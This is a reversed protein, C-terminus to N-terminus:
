QWEAIEARARRTMEVFRPFFRELYSSALLVATGIVALSLWPSFAYFQAAYKLHYLTGLALGTGGALFMGKDKIGHAAATIIVSAMVCLFSSVIGEDVTLQVLVSAVALWAALRRYGKGSGKVEFSLGFFLLAIPLYTFPISLTSGSDLIIGNAVTSWTAAAGLFTLRECFWQGTAALSGEVEELRKALAFMIATAAFLLAAAFIATQPYLLFNRGLLAGYPLVLIARAIIGETSSMLARQRLVRLEYAALGGFLALSLLAVANPDRTPLLLLLNAALYLATARKAEPRILASFALFAVATLAPAAVALMLLAQALSPTTVVFFPQLGDPVGFLGNYILAGLQVFHAPLFAAAVGLFSRAGKDEKLKL